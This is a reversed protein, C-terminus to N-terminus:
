KERGKKVRSIIGCVAMLVTLAIIVAGFGIWLPSLVWLWSWDVNGTLKLAIFVLTLGSCFGIGKNEVSKGTQHQWSILRICFGSFCIFLGAAVLLISSTQSFDGLASLFVSFIGIIILIGSVLQIINDARKNKMVDILIEDTRQVMTEEPIKEGSFLEALTIGLEDCLTKYISPDPLNRGNEWNGVTRDSVGLKESLAQQTMGLERRREAIFKGIKKQDM